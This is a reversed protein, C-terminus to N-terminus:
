KIKKFYVATSDCIRESPCEKSYWKTQIQKNNTMLLMVIPQGVKPIEMGFRNIISGDPYSKFLIKLKEKERVLSCLKKSDSQYGKVEFVCPEKKEPQNIYLSYNSFIISGGATKGLSVTYSYEGSWDIQVNDASCSLTLSWVIIGLIHKIMNNM